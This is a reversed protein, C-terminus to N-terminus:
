GFVEQMYSDSLGLAEKLDAKIAAPRDAAFQKIRDIEKVFGEYSGTCEAHQKQGMFTDSNFKLREREIESEVLNYLRDVAATVNESTFATNLLEAFRRCFADKWERNAILANFLGSAAPADGMRLTVTKHSSNTFGWCFDYYIWKWKGGPLKYYQINAYDSNGTYLECVMYDMFSNVDIQGCIYEYNASNSLDHEKVWAMLETWEENTGYSVRTSAKGILMDSTNETGEHQAVFFRNRKEKMFYVGWYEGNLYMVYPEYAQYLFNVDTGKLIEVALEDRIKSRNQDQAGARLVVAKYSGYGRDEPFFEYNLRSAGYESRAIVNFGKQARGRGFAGAISIGVNQNFVRQGNEDFVEFAAPREWEDGNEFYNATAIAEGYPLSADYNDGYAYIGTKDDWLNDPDTVLTVVPLTHEAGDTTFLYTGTATDGTLRGERFAAARVVTNKNITIPGTYAPSSADPTTCDTTYRIVEDEDASISLTVTDSYIGPTVDFQPTSTVGSYGSGNASGPTPSTYYLRNDKADRGYSIGAKMPGASLKDLLNGDPDFLFISEGSSSISFNLRATNKKQASNGEAQILMYQGAGITTEPFVWKAPNKPNNTLGYGTLTVAQSTSNYIEVWDLSQSGYASGFESIYVGSLPLRSAQSFAEYGSSTNPYGPSPQSCSAFEGTGDPTRAMSVDTEMRSYSYSDLIKGGSSSLVVDEGYARLGFPAHLEGDILGENGSLFIVLYGKAPITTGQPLRYKMPQAITDSIGFGSIDMDQDTSNYLEMWDSYNGSGDLLTTANSAMFENIYLGIDETSMLEAEYAGIGADSNEYGPSPKMAAWTGDNQRSLTMGSDVSILDVSDLVRSSSDFLVVEEEANLKFPAHMNDSATGSCWVVLYEGPQLQTGAPFVYKPGELLSDSLGYGSIDVAASGGNYLEIWDPYDGTGDPVSGKNSLMIENIRLGDVPATQEGKDLRILFVILVALLVISVLLSTLRKKRLTQRM